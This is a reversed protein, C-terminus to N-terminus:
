MDERVNRINVFERELGHRWMYVYRELLPGEGEIRARSGVM